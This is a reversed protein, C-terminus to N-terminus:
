GKATTLYLTYDVNPGPYAYLQTYGENMYATYAGWAAAYPYVEWDAPVTVTETSVSRQGESYSEWHITVQRLPGEWSDLFSFEPEQETYTFATESPPFSGGNVTMERLVLTGRDFALSEEMGGLCICRTWILDGEIRDLEMVRVDAFYSQIYDDLKEWDLSEGFLGVCARMSGDEQETCDFLCGRYQGSITGEGVTVLATEGGRAFIWTCTEALESSTQIQIAPCRALIKELSNAALLEEWSFGLEGRLEPQSNIAQVGTLRYPFGSDPVDNPAFSLAFNWADYYGSDYHYQVEAQASEAGTETISVSVTIGLMADLQEKHRAFDYSVNGDSGRLVRVKNQEQWSEPLMTNEAGISQLFDSLEAQGVLDWLATRYMWAAYWGAMNWILNENPAAYDLEGYDWFAMAAAFSQAATAERFDGNEARATVCTCALLFALSLLLCLTRKM